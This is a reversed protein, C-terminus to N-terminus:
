SSQSGGTGDERRRHARGEGERTNWRMTKWNDRPLDTQHHVQADLENAAFLESAVKGELGKTLVAELSDEAAETKRVYTTAM